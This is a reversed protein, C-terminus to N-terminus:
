ADVKKCTDRVEGFNRNRQEYILFFEDLEKETIDPWLIESFILEAYAAQFLLFNSLRIQGGTRVILDPDPLIHYMFDNLDSESINTKGQAIIKNVAHVIEARGGYNICLNVTMIRNQSTMTEAREIKKALESPLRNLDGSVVVKIGRKSFDNVNDLYRSALRFLGKVESEARKWNETSFVFLSVVKIGRRLCYDIALEAKKIGERHGKLRSLGRNIAWRGNGDMIFAVHMPLTSM